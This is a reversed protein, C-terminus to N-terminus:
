KLVKQIKDLVSSPDDAQSLARGIICAWNDGAISGAESIEGGQTILGPSMLNFTEGKLEAEILNKYKIILDPRNGPVVFNRVEQQCANQYICTPAKEHIYGSPYDDATALYGSHTMHGGVIPVMRHNIVSMTWKRQTIPGALPFLIVHSIGCDSLVFMFDDCTEPIDTGAKQHDYIISLNSNEAEIEEVVAEIGVKLAIAAGIKFGSIIPHNATDKILKEVQTLNTSDLAVIVSKM